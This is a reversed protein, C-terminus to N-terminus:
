IQHEKVKIHHSLIRIEYLANDGIADFPMVVGPPRTVLHGSTGM